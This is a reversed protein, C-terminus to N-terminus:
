VELGTAMLGLLEDVAEEIKLPGDERFWRAPSSFLGMLGLTVVTPNCTRISGDAIGERIIQETRHLLLRQTELHSERSEESLSNLNILVMARGFDTAVFAAWQGFGFRLKQLGNGDFELARDMVAATERYSMKLCEAILENKSPVYHYIAPKTVGLRKAVDDISTAKVGNENFARAAERLIIELRGDFDAGHEVGIRRASRRIAEKSGAM